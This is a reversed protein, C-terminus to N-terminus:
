MEDGPVFCFLSVGHPDYESVFKNLRQNWLNDHCIVAEGAENRIPLGKEDRVILENPIPVYADLKWLYDGSPLSERHGVRAWWQGDQRLEADTTHCDNTGCCSPLGPRSLAGYWQDLDPRRPDHALAPTIFFIFLVLIPRAYIPTSM